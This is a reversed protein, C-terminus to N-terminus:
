SIFNDLRTRAHIHTHSPPKKQMVQLPSVNSPLAGSRFVCTMFIIRTNCTPLIFYLLYTSDEDSGWRLRDFCSLNAGCRWTLVIALSHTQAHLSPTGWTDLWRTEKLSAVVVGPWWTPLRIECLFSSILFIRILM